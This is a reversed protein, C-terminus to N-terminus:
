HIKTYRFDNKYVHNLREITFSSVNKFNDEPQHAKQPSDSYMGPLSVNPMHSIKAKELIFKADQSSTEVLFLTM